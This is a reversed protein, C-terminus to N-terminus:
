RLTATSCSQPSQTGDSSITRVCWSFTGRLRKAPHWLVYYGQGVNLRGAGTTATFVVTKKASVVVRQRVAAGDDLAVYSLRIGTGARGTVPRARVGPPTASRVVPPAVGASTVQAAALATSWGRGDEVDVGQEGAVGVLEPHVPDRAAAFYDGYRGGEHRGASQAIVV